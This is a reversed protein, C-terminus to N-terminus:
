QHLGDLKGRVCVTGLNRGIYGNYAGFSLHSNLLEFSYLASESLSLRVVLVLSQPLADISQTYM